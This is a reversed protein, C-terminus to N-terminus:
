QFINEREELDPRQQGILKSLGKMYNQAFSTISQSSYWVCGLVKCDHCTKAIDWQPANWIEEVSKELINYTNEHSNFKWCPVIVSGNSNIFISKWVGCEDFTTRGYELIQQFYQSPIMLQPSTKKRAYDLISRCVKRMTERDPLLSYEVDSEDEVFTLSVSKAGLDKAKDFYSQDIFEQTNYKTIVSTWRHPVNKQTLLYLNDIVRKYTIASVGRVNCYSEEFVSDISCTVFQIYKKLEELDITHLLSCNTIVTM